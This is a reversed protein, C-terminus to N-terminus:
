YVLGKVFNVLVLKLERCKALAAKINSQRAANWADQALKKNCHNYWKDKNEKLWWEEFNM